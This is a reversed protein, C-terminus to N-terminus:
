HKIIYMNDDVFDEIKGSYDYNEALNLLVDRAITEDNSYVLDADDKDVLYYGHLHHEKVLEFFVDAFIEYYDTNATEELVENLNKSYKILYDSFYEFFSTEADDYEIIYKHERLYEDLVSEMCNRVASEFDLEDVKATELVSMFGESDPEIACCSCSECIDQMDMKSLLELVANEATMHNETLINDERDLIVWSMERNKTYKEM